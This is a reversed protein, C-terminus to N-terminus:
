KVTWLALSSVNNIFVRNGSITPQAWTTSDIATYRKMPQFGTQSSKVVLLEANDNLFSLVDSAKLIATNSFALEDLSLPASQQPTHIWVRYQL